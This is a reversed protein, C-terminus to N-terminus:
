VSRRGDPYTVVQGGDNLYAVGGRAVAQDWRLLLRTEQLNADWWQDIQLPQKMGKAGAILGEIFAGAEASALVVDAWQEGDAILWRRPPTLVPESQEGFVDSWDVDDGSM